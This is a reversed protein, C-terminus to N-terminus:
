SLQLGAKGRVLALGSKVSLLALRQEHSCNQLDKKRIKLLLFAFTAFGHFSIWTQM